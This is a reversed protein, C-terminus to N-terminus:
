MPIPVVEGVCASDTWPLPRKEPFIKPALRVAVPVSLTVPKVVSPLAEVETKVAVSAEVVLRMTELRPLLPLVQTCASAVPFSEEVPLGQPEPEPVTVETDFEAWVRVVDGVVPATTADRLRVLGLAQVASWCNLPLADVVCSEAVTAYKPPVAVDVKLLKPSRKTTPDVESRLKVASLAVVECAVVVLKATEEMAEPLRILVVVPPASM